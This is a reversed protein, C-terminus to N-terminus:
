RTPPDNGQHYLLFPKEIECFSAPYCFVFRSFQIVTCAKKTCVAGCHFQSKRKAFSFLISTINYASGSIM